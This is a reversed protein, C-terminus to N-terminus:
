EDDAEEELVEGTDPDVLGNVTFASRIDDELDIPLTTAGTRQEFARQLMRTGAEVDGPLLAEIRRLKLTFEREHTALLETSSVVDLIAFVVIRRDGDDSDLKGELPSLGDADGKPLTSKIKM